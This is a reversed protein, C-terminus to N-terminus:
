AHHRQAETLRSRVPPTASRMSAGGCHHPAAGPKLTLTPRDHLAVEVKRVDVGGTAADVMLGTAMMAAIVSLCQKWPYQSLFM